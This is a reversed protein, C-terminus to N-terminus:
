DIDLNDTGTCLSITSRSINIIASTTSNGCSDQIDIINRYSGPLNDRTRDPGTSRLAGIM